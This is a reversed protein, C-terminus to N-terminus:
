LVSGIIVQIRKCGETSIMVSLVFHCSMRLLIM